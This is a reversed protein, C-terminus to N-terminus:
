CCKDFICGVFGAAFDPDVGYGGRSRIGRLCKVHGEHGEGSVRALGSFCNLFSEPEVLLHFRM